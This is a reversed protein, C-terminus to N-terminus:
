HTCLRNAVRILLSILVKLDYGLAIVGPTRPLTLTSSSVGAFLRVSDKTLM